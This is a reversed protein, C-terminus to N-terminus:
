GWLGRLAQVASKPTAAAIEVPDSSTKWIKKQGASLSRWFVRAQQKLGAIDDVLQNSTLTGGTLTHTLGFGPSAAPGSSAHSTVVLVGATRSISEALITKESGDEATFKTRTDPRFTTKKM